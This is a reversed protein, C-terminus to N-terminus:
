LYPVLGLVYTRTNASKPSGLSFGLCSALSIRNQTVLAPFGVHTSSITIPLSLGFRLLAKQSIQLPQAWLFIQFLLGSLCANPLDGNIKSLSLFFCVNDWRCHNKPSSALSVFMTEDVITNLLQPWLLLCRWHVQSNQFASFLFGSMRGIKPSKQSFLGSFCVHRTESQSKSASFQFATM